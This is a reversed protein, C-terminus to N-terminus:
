STILLDNMLSATAPDEFSEHYMLHCWQCTSYGISVLIPRDLRRAEAFAEDGWPLWHVPNDAHQLLYPSSSGKLRNIDSYDESDSSIPVALLFLSIMIIIRITKTMITIYQTKNHDAIPDRGRFVNQNSIGARLM